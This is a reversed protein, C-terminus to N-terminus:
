ELISRQAAPARYLYLNVGVSDEVPFGGMTPHKSDLLHRSFHEYQIDLRPHLHVGLKINWGVVRYQADDTKAHVTNDWYFVGLMNTNVSLNLEEKQHSSTFLPDRGPHVFYKYNLKTERMELLTWEGALAEQGLSLSALLISAATFMMRINKGM